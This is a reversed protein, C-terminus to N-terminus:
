AAPTDHSQFRRLITNREQPSLVGAFPNSQRLRVSRDDTGILVAIVGDVPGDLIASWEEPTPRTGPSCETAWRRLTARAHEVLKPRESVRVALLRGFALSREDIHRHDTM